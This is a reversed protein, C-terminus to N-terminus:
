IYATLSSIKMICATSALILIILLILVFFLPVNIGESLHMNVSVHNPIHTLLSTYGQVEQAGTGFLGVIQCTVDNSLISGFM